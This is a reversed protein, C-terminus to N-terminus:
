HRTPQTLTVSVIHHQPHKTATQKKKKLCFVAYSIPKHSSNLRTSKRDAWGDKEVSIATRLYVDFDTSKEPGLEDWWNLFKPQWRELARQLRRDGSLNVNNPIKENYNISM